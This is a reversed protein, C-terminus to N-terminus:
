SLAIRRISLTLSNRHCIMLPVCLYEFFASVHFTIMSLNLDRTTNGLDRANNCCLTFGSGVFFSIWGSFSSFVCLFRYKIHFTTPVVGPVKTCLIQPYPFCAHKLYQLEFKSSRQRFLDHVCTRRYIVFLYDPLSVILSLTKSSTASSYSICISSLDM